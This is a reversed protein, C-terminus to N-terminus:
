HSPEEKEEQKWEHLLGLMAEGTFASSGIAAYIIAGLQTVAEIWLATVFPVHVVAVAIIAQVIISFSFVAPIYWNPNADVDAKVLVATYIAKFVVMVCGAWVVFILWQLPSVGNKLYLLFGAANVVFYMSILMASVGESREHMREKLSEKVIEKGPDYKKGGDLLNVALM